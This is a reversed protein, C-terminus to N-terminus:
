HYIAGSEVYLTNGVGGYVTAGAHCIVSCHRGRSGLGLTIHDADQRHVNAKAKVLASVGCGLNITTEAGGEVLAGYEAVNIVASGIAWVESGEYANVIAGDYAYVKSGKFAHVVSGCHAYVTSGSYAWVVDDIGVDLRTGQRAHLNRKTEVESM